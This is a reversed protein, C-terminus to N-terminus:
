VAFASFFGKETAAAGPKSMANAKEKRARVEEELAKDMEEGEAKEKMAKDINFM